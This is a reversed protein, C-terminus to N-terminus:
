RRDTAAPTQASSDRDGQHRSRLRFLYLQEEQLYRVRNIMAALQGALFVAFGISFFGAAVFGSWIHPTFTGRIVRHGLFFAGFGAALTLMTVSISNFVLSPRYDRFCNFIIGSTRIAYLGLSSAVRSRGHERSGRVAIPVELISVGKFSLVLFSEQTYTFRGQLALRLLAESSYARFGCSVDWFRQGAILSVLRSMGQNGWRKLLPMQPTLGPDKFRSASVFEAQGTLIPQILLRIDGPNFQGDGDINVAIDASRQVAESLGRQIAVGVGLTRQHSIVEAGAARALEATDDSSGDDIVLVETDAIGPIERPIDAIVDRITAAENLAPIIVLLRPRGRIPSPETPGSTELPTL